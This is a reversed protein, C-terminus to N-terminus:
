ISYMFITGNHERVFIRQLNVSLIDSHFETGFIFIGSLSVIDYISTKKAIKCMGLGLIITDRFVFIGSLSVIDYISTKKAIKCM